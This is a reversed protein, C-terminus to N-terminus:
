FRYTESTTSGDSYRENMTVTKKNITFTIVEDDPGDRWRGPGDNGFSDIGRWLFRNGDIRCDTKWLKNDDPRRYQVRTLGDPQPTTTMTKPDRGMLIAIGAKCVM